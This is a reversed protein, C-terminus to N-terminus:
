VTYRCELRGVLALQWVEDCGVQLGEFVVLEACFGQGVGSSDCIRVGVIPDASFEQYQNPTPSSPSVTVQLQVSGLKFPWDLHTSIKADFTAVAGGGQEQGGQQVPDFTPIIHVLEACANGVCLSLLALIRLALVLLVGEGGRCRRSSFM